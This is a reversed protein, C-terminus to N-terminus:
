QNCDLTGALQRTYDDAQRKCEEYNTAEFKSENFQKKLKSIEDSLAFMHNQIASIYYRKDQVHRNM